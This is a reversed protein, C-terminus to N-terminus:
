ITDIQIKSKDFKQAFRNTYDLQFFSILGIPFIYLHVAMIYRFVSYIDSFLNNKDNVFKLFGINQRITSVKGM